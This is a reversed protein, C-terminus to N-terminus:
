NGDRIILRLCETTNTLITFLGSHKSIHRLAITSLQFTTNRIQKLENKTYDDDNMVNELFNAASWAMSTALSLDHDVDCNDPCGDYECSEHNNHAYKRLSLLVDGCYVLM